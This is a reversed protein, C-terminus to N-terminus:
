NIKFQGIFQTFFITYYITCIRFCLCNDNVQISLNIADDKDVIFKQSATRHSGIEMVSDGVDACTEQRHLTICSDEHKKISHSEMKSEEFNARKEFMNITEKVSQVEAADQRMAANAIKGWEELSGTEKM